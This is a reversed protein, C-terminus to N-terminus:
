LLNNFHNKFVLIFFIKCCNSHYFINNKIFFFYVLISFKGDIFYAFIESNM